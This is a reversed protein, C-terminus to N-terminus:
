FLATVTKREGEHAESTQEEPAIRISGTAQAAPPKGGGEAVATGLASGCDGCFKKEPPNDAGCQACRNALPAGCDGCFKKGAPNESGCKSCRMGEGRPAAPRGRASM